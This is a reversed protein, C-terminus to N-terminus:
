PIAPRNKKKEELMKKRKFPHIIKIKNKWCGKRQPHGSM